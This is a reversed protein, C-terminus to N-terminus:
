ESSSGCPDAEKEAELREIEEACAILTYLSQKRSVVEYNVFGRQRLDRLIRTASDFVVGVYNARVYEALDNATFDYQEATIRQQCFELVIQGINKRVRNINESQESM